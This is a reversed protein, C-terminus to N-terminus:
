FRKGQMPGGCGMSALEDAIKQQEPTLSGYLKDIADAMANMQTARERMFEVRENLPLQAKSGRQAHCQVGQGFKDLMATEYAKWALEQDETIKLKFKLYDIREQHREITPGGMGTRNFQGKQGPGRFGQGYQAGDQYQCNGGWRGGAPVMSLSGATIGVVAVTAIIIKSSRKM